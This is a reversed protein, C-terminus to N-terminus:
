GCFELSSVAVIVNKVVYDYEVAICVFFVWLKGVELCCYM